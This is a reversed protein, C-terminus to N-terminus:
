EAHVREYAALVRPVVVARDIRERTLRDNQEAAREVLTDDAIGMRIAREISEVDEPQTLLGNEGSRIWEATSGTDSQIPLAGMVMAELMTNPTGDTVSNAIALRSRGMLRVLDAHPSRPLVSVRLKTTLGMHRVVPEVEPSASHVVVEYDQLIDACRHVAALAVM